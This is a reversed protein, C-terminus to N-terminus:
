RHDGALYGGPRDARPSKRGHAQPEKRQRDTAWGPRARRRLTCGGSRIAWSTLSGTRSRASERREENVTLKLKGMIDRLHHLAQTRTRCPDAAGPRTVKAGAHPPTLSLCALKLLEM